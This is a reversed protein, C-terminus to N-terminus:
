INWIMLNGDDCLLNLVLFSDVSESLPVRVFFVSGQTFVVVRVGIGRARDSANTAEDDFFREFCEVHFDHVVASGSFM